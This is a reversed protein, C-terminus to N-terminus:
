TEKFDILKLIKVAKKSGSRGLVGLMKLISEVYIGVPKKASVNLVIQDGEKWELIDRIFFKGGQINVSLSLSIEQMVKKLMSDYDIFEAVESVNRLRDKVTEIASNQIALIIPYEIGDIEVSIHGEIFIEKKSNMPAILAPNVETELYMVDGSMISNWSEKFAELLLNVVKRIIKLELRTFEKGEVKYPKASGGFIVSVISYIMRPDIILFHTGKLGTINFLNICSPVPLKVLLEEFKVLKTEAKYVNNISVVLSSLKARSSRSWKELVIELGAITGLSIHELDDLNFKKYEAKEERVEEEEKGLSKLLLNVEEQDLIREAM